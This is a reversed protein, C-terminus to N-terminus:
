LFLKEHISASLLGEDVCEDVVNTCNVVALWRCHKHECQSLLDYNLNFSLNLTPFSGTSKNGAPILDRRWYGCCPTVMLDSYLFQTQLYLQITWASAESSCEPPNLPRISMPQARSRHILFSNTSACSSGDDLNHLFFFSVATRGQFFLHGLTVALIKFCLQAVLLQQDESVLLLGPCFGRSSLTNWSVQFEWSMVVHERSVSYSCLCCPQWHTHTNPPPRQTPRLQVGVFM